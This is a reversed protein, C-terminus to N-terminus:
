SGGDLKRQAEPSKKKLKAELIEICRAYFIGSRSM